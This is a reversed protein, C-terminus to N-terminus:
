KWWMKWKYKNRYFHKQAKIIVRNPKWPFLISDCNKLIHVVKRLDDVPFFSLRKYFHRNQQKAYHWFGLTWLIAHEWTMYIGKNSFNLLMLNDKPPLNCKAGSQSHKQTWLTKRQPLNQATYYGMLIQMGKHMQLHRERYTFSLNYIFSYNWITM